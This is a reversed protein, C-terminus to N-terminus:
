IYYYKAISLKKIKLNSCKCNVLFLFIRNFTVIFIWISFNTKVKFLTKSIIDILTIFSMINDNICAHKYSKTYTCVCTPWNQSWLNPTTNQKYDSYKHM